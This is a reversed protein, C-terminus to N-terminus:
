ENYLNFKAESKDPNIIKINEKTTKIIIISGDPYTISIENISYTKDKINDRTKRIAAVILKLLYKGGEEIAIAIGTEFFLKLLNIEDSGLTFKLSKIDIESDDERALRIFKIDNVESKNLSEVLEVLVSNPVNIKFYGKIM